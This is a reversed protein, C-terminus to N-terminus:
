RSGQASLADLRRKAEVTREHSEGQAARLGEYGSRLLPAAEARRDLALLCAGLVSESSAILWHGAPLAARRLRLSDRLLPEAARPRDLDMLSLAEVQLAAAVMPHGETLTRGRLALVQRCLRIAGEPDGRRRLLYAYNYTTWAVDPHEPGLLKRRMALAERFVPEAEELDGNGELAAALTSLAAAVDPHEGHLGRMIDVVERQLALAGRTDGRTGVIVALNNLSVAVGDSRDGLLKRQAALTRRLLAEAEDHRGLSQLVSALEGDAAVSELSGGLGARAYLLTAERFLKEAELFRGEAGRLSGLNVLSRAVDRHDSGLTRRRTELAAVLHPEAAEFLGLGAYTTGLTARVAAQIEPQDVLEAETRKGAEELVEAITVKRGSARPDASALMKQVFANIQEAKAAERRAKDREEAAVRAERRVGTVGVALSALLGTTLVAAVTAAARHRRLFRRVLDATSYRHVSVLQGTAYRRVDAALERATPYRDAPSMAMAKAVIALLEPPSDSVLAEVPAPAQFAAANLVEDVTKGAHPPVGALLYYLIAGLAYVDAREDVAEGRAQEPPMFHPTGMVTGVVTKDAGETPGPPSASEEPAARSLDKALGWDVVVTEGFEGVLVNAPKLDRHVIRQTHAYAIADAIAIVHPLLGLRERLSTAEHLLAELSRGTVLKMAYFPEGEPWRGAEYVPVISPHQLRATVLAERVFRGEGGANPAPLEKVAVPRGLRRDRARLIRGMGGRAFEGEVEYLERPLVPLSTGGDGLRRTDITPGIADDSKLTDLRLERDDSV